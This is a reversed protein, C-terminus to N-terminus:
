TLVEAAEFLVDGTAPLVAPLPLFILAATLCIGCFIAGFTLATLFSNFMGFIKVSIRMQAMGNITNVNKESVGNQAQVPTTKNAIAPM